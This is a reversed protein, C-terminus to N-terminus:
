AKALRQKRKAPDLIEEITWPNKSLNMRRYITNKNMGSISALDTYKYQKGNYVLTKRAKRVRKKAIQEDSYGARRRSMITQYSIGLIRSAEAVTCKKGHLKFLKDESYEIMMTDKPDVGPEYPQKWIDCTCDPRTCNFCAKYDKAMTMPCQKMTKIERRNSLLLIDFYLLLQL